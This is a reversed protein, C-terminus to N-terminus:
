LVFVTFSQLTSIILVLTELTSNGSKMMQWNNEASVNKSSDEKGMRLSEIDVEMFLIHEYM